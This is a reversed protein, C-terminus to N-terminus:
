LDGNKKLSAVFSEFDVVPEKAKKRFTELDEADELLSARVADNVVRAMHRMQRTITSFVRM